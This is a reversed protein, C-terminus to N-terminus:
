GRKPQKDARGPSFGAVAGFLVSTRFLPSLIWCIDDGSISGATKAAERLDLGLICIGIGLRNAHLCTNPAWCIEPCELVEMESHIGPREHTASIRGM